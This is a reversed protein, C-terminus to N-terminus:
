KESRVYHWRGANFLYLANVENDGSTKKNNIVRKEDESFDQLILLDKLDPTPTSLRKVEIDAHNHFVTCHSSVSGERIASPDKKEEIDVGFQVIVYDYNAYRSVRVGQFKTLVNKKSDFVDIKKESFSDICNDIINLDDNVNQLHYDVTCSTNSTISLLFFLIKKM